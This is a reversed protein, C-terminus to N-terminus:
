NAFDYWPRFQIRWIVNEGWHGTEVRSISHESPLECGVVRYNDTNYEQVEKSQFSFSCNNWMCKKELMEKPLKENQTTYLVFQMWMDGNDGFYPYERDMIWYMVNGYQYVYIGMDPQYARLVGNEAIESLKADETQLPIYEDPNVCLLEGASLYIGVQYAYEEWYPKILVEYDNEELNIKDDKVTLVFGSCTYDYQCLFYNNVDERDVYSIKPVMMEDTDLNRLVVSYAKEKATKNLEFAFGKITVNNNEEEISEVQAIWSFDDERIENIRCKQAHMMCIYVGWIVFLLGVCILAKVITREKNESM